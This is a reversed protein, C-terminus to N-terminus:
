SFSTACSSLSKGKCIKSYDCSECHDTNVKDPLGLNLCHQWLYNEVDEKSVSKDVIEKDDVYCLVLKMPSKAGELYMAYAYSYLQFWYNEPVQMKSSGTKFDWIEVGEKTDNSIILDPIGSIMYQFLEFKIPRESIFKAKDGFEKLKEVVWSVQAKYKVEEQFQFNQIITRSIEDHVEIGREASSFSRSSLEEIDGPFKDEREKSIADLKLINKLYYKRPCLAVQALRTVSLEPMLFSKSPKIRKEVGLNDFHFMPPQNSVRELFKEDFPKQIDVVSVCEKLHEKLEKAEDSNQLFNDIGFIWSGKVPSAKVSGFNLRVWSLENEARTCAVYFLRKSESFEKRKQEIQELIYHPSKFKKKEGVGKPWKFSYPEKGFMQTMPLTADNTYIGGLIVKSFELGKSAHASMIVVKEPNDGYQFDMSYNLSSWESLKHSIKSIDGANIDVLLKINELSNKYNSTAIGTSSLFILFAQYIGIYPINGHFEKALTDLEGPEQEGLLRFYSCLSFGLYEDKLKGEDFEYGLLLDFMGLIPDELMPVKVQSTFGIGADLLLQMLVKSPKLRRYLISIVGEHEKKIEELIALAELYEIDANQLKKKDDLFSLDAEIEHIKGYSREAIPAEQRAVEVAYHDKGEFNLGLTFIHSFLANNFHIIGRDSRYNNLLELNLPTKKEMDMFVGLEGGRFGYIAQKVDGVCFIRNYDSNVVKSLIDFQIYSTDQFEDVILYQYEDSVMKRVKPDNLKQDVIFELDGFTFGPLQEYQGEVYLLLQRFQGYWNKIIEKGSDQFECLDEYNDKLFDKFNKVLEFQDKAEQPVSKAGPKRPIKWDQNFLETAFEILKNLSFDFTKLFSANRELYNFWDKDHFETFESLDGKWDFLEGFSQLYLLEEIVKNTNGIEFNKIDIKKWSLRLTPDGIIAKIASLVQKREKMVQRFFEGEEEENDKIWSEFIDEIQKTYEGEGIIEDNPNVDAFFGQKILKYCFGHITSITLSDLNEVATEWLKSREPDDKIKNKFKGTIRIGIEGAAKKTFTMLAVKSFKSKIYRGFDPETSPDYQGMWKDALYILHETLVFTKGSGAGASLLAGGEREISKKQEPNASSM